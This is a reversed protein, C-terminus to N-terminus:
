GVGNTDDRGRAAIHLSARDSFTPRSKAASARRMWSPVAGSRGIMPSACTASARARISSPMGTAGRGQLERLAFQAAAQQRRSLDMLPRPEIGFRFDADM